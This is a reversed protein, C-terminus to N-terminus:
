CIYVYMYVCVYIYIYIYIYVYSNIDQLLFRNRSFDLDILFVIHYGMLHGVPYGMPYGWRLGVFMVMFKVDLIILVNNMYYWSVM